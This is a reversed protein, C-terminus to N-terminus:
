DFLARKLAVKLDEFMKQDITMVKRILRKTDIVRVQSLVVSAERDDIIGLPFHWTGVRRRGTLAVAFFMRENFGKIVLVPRDFNDGTGDQEFGVNVGLSCWWIERPHCFMKSSKTDMDKKFTNWSDFEKTMGLVM